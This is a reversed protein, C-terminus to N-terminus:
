VQVGSQRIQHYCGVFVKNHDGIVRKKQATCGASQIHAVTEEPLAQMVARGQGRERKCLECSPSARAEIMHLWKGCPFSCTIVQTARKKKAEHVAGSAFWLCLERSEGDRNLFDAAWTTAGPSQRNEAEQLQIMCEWGWCKSDMLDSTVGAGAAQQVRGWGTDTTRLFEKSWNGAAKTLVRQRQFEAGGQLMATRVAKSWTSVWKVGKDTWRYLLRPTRTTWQKSDEPLQRAREAVTDAEENLPEGWHAKFKVMFTRAGRIVRARLCEIITKMIDANADGALTTRPGRGIWRSMKTLTTESDCLYQLDTGASTAQLTRALAAIEPRLSGVGEEERGVKVELGTSRQGKGGRPM